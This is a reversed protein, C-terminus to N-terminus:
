QEGRKQYAVLIRVDKYDIEKNDMEIFIDLLRKTIDRIIVGISKAGRRKCLENIEDYKNRNHFWIKQYKGYKEM